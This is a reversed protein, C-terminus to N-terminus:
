AGAQRAGTLEEIASQMASISEFTRRRLLREPFELDFHNELALMLNISAHSSLGADYLDADDSLSAVDVALRGQQQVIARIEERM